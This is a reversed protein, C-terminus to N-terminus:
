RARFLTSQVQERMLDAQADPDAACWRISTAPCSRRVSSRADGLSTSRHCSSHALLGALLAVSWPIVPRLPAVSGGWSRLDISPGETELWRAQRNNNNNNFHDAIVILNVIDWSRSCRKVARLGARDGRRRSTCSM